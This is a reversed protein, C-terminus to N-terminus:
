AFAGLWTTVAYLVMYTLVAVGAAALQWRARRIGAVSCRDRRRLAWWVLLAIVALGAVRFWWGYGGYLDDAWALATTGGIIGFLALVTPGVCCLMAAAGGLMGIRRWPLVSSPPPSPLHSTEAAQRKSTSRM